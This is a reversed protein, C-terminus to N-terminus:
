SPKLQGQIFFDFYEYGIFSLFLNNIKTAKPNKWKPKHSGQSIDLCSSFKQQTKRGWKKNQFTHHESMRYHSCCKWVWSQGDDLSDLM